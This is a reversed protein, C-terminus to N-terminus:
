NASADKSGAVAGGFGFLGALSRQRRTDVSVNTSMGARLDRVDQGQDFEIRVPVRQVVKVWNGSANQPPLISFQAGTGPSIAAVHGHWVRDPYADVTVEAEQGPQVYTLDTEKPNADVWPQDDAVISFVPAGAQLYRGMQISTVQTAVGAIPARLVTLSLDRQARDLAAKAEMWPAFGEIPLNPNGALQSLISARQQELQEIQSRAQAVAIESTELDARSGARSALLDQKRGYDAQRLQLTQRALQLQSDLSKVTSKLTDFDTAVKALHAKAEDVAIKFSTQDVEFLEDGVALRQGEQVFIKAVKGSVEPTVLVKQAGVYANDTTVYRGGHLYAYGGGALALAPIIFFLVFRLGRRKRPPRAVPAPSPSAGALAAPETGAAKELTPSAGPTASKADDTM